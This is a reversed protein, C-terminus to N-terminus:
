CRVDVFYEFAVEWIVVLLNHLLEAVLGLLGLVELGSHVEDYLLEDVVLKAVIHKLLSEEDDAVLVQFLFDEVCDLGEL